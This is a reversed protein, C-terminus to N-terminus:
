GCPGRPWRHPVRTCAAASSGTPRSHVPDRDGSEWRCEVPLRGSNGSAPRPPVRARVSVRAVTRLSAGTPRLPCAAAKEVWGRRWVPRGVLRHFVEISHGHLHGRVIERRQVGTRHGGRVCRHRCRRREVPGQRFLSGVRPVHQAGEILYPSGCGDRHAARPEKAEDDAPGQRDRHGRVPQRGGPVLVGAAVQRRRGGHRLLDGELPQQIQEMQRRFRGAAKDGPGRHRIERGQRGGPMRDELPHAPVDLVITQAPCGLDGHHHALFKVRRDHFRQGHQSEPPSAQQPARDVSLAPHDRIAERRKVPRGNDTGLGAIDVRASEIRDPLDSVPNVPRSSPHVHISREAEPGGGGRAPRVQGSSHLPGVGPGSIPM